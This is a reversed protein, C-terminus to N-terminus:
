TSEPTSQTTSIARDSSSAAIRELEEDTLKPVQAIEIPGGGAGTVESRDVLLRNAKALLALAAQSDYLEFEIAGDATYKLKKILGFKGAEHAKEFDLLPLKVGPRFSVFDDMNGRAMEALRILVEDGGMALESVRRKIEAQIDPKTLNEHGIVRASTESYGARRAAASANWCNVYEDVFAKQKVTLAL